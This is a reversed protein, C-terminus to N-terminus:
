KKKKKFLTVCFFLLKYIKKNKTDIMGVRDAVCHTEAHPNMVFRLLASGLWVDQTKMPNLMIM